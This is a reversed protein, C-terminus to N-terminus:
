TKHSLVQSLFDWDSGSIEVDEERYRLENYM